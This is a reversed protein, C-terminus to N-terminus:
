GLVSTEAMDTSPNIHCNLPIHCIQFFNASIEDCQGFQGGGGGVEEGGGFFSHM